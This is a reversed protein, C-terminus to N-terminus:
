PIGRAPVRTPAAAPWSPPVSAEPHALRPRLAGDARVTTTERRRGASAVSFREMCPNAGASPCGLTHATEVVPCWDDSGLPNSMFCINSTHANTPVISTGAASAASGTGASKLFAAFYQWASRVALPTSANLVCHPVLGFLIFAKPFHTDAVFLALAFAALAVLVLLGVIGGLRLRGGGALLQLGSVRRLERLVVLVEALAHLGLVGLVAVVFVVVLRALGSRPPRTGSRLAGLGRLPPPSRLQPLPM